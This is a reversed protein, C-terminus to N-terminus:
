KVMEIFKVIEEVMRNFVKEGKEKTALKARGFVGSKTLEFRKLVSFKKDIKKENVAKKMNVLDPQLFLMLSTEAEDAHSPKDELFKTIGDTKYLNIYFIDVHNELIHKKAAEKIAIEHARGGHGSIVYIRKFGQNVLSQFIDYMFGRLGDFDSTITGPYYRLTSSFGYFITPLVMIGTRKGVERSVKEAIISDTLLPLHYGHEEITGIPIIVDNRKKLYEEVDKWTMFGLNM